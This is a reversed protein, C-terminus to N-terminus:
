QNLPLSDTISTTIKLKKAQMELLEVPAGNGVAIVAKQMDQIQDFVFWGILGLVVLYLLHIQKIIHM